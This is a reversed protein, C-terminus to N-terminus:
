PSRRPPAARARRSGRSSPAGTGTRSPARPSPRRDPASGASPGPTEWLIIPAPRCRHHQRQQRAADGRRERLVADMQVGVLGLDALHQAVAADRDVIRERHEARHQFIQRLAHLDIRGLVIEIEAEGLVARDIGAVDPEGGGVAVLALHVEGVVFLRGIPIGIRFIAVRHEARLLADRHLLGRRQGIADRVGALGDGESEVIQGRDLRRRVHQPGSSVNRPGTNSSDPM